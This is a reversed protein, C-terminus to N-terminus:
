FVDAELILRTYHNLPCLPPMAEECYNGNSFARTGDRGNEDGVEAEMRM